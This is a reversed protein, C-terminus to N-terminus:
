AVRPPPDISFRSAPAPACPRVRLASGPVFRQGPMVFDSEAEASSDVRHQGSRLRTAVTFTPAVWLPLGAVTSPRGQLAGGPPAALIVVPERARFIREPFAGWPPVGSVDAAQERSLSGVSVRADVAAV